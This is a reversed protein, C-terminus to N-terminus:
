LKPLKSKEEFTDFIKGLKEIMLNIPKDLNNM